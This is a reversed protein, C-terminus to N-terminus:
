INYTQCDICVFGADKRTTEARLVLCGCEICTVTLKIFCDPCVISDGAIHINYDFLEKGCCECVYDM